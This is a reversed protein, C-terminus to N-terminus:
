AGREARARDRWERVRYWLPDLVLDFTGPHRLPPRRVHAQLRQLRGVVRGRGAADAEVVGWQDFTRVGDDALRALLAAM